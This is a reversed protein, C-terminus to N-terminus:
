LNAFNGAAWDYSTSMLAVATLLITKNHPPNNCQAFLGSFHKKINM